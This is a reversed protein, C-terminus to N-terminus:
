DVAGKSEILINSKIEELLEHAMSKTAADFVIVVYKGVMDAAVWGSASLQLPEGVEGEPMYSAMFDNFAVSSEADNKYEICLLYCQASGYRAIVADTNDDLHLINKESLYYHYNLSSPLYFYRVTNANLENLPLLGIISPRKNSPKIARTIISALKFIIEKSQPTEKDAIICFFYRGQWFSLLGKRYESNEGIGAEDGERVHSFVGYADEPSGMDFMEIKLEPQAHATMRIVQMERYGYMRYIEGAGDMYRFITQRDYVEVDGDRKWGDIGDKIIDGLNM